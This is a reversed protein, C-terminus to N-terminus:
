QDGELQEVRATLAQVANWLVAVQQTLSVRGNDDIIEAPLEAPDVEIVDRAPVTYPAPNPNDATPPATFTRAARRTRRAEARLVAALGDLPRGAM